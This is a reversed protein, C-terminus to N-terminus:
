PRLAAAGWHAADQWPGFSDSLAQYAAYLM